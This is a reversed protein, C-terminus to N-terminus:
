TVFVENSMDLYYQFDSKGFSFFLGGKGQSIDLKYSHVGYSSQPTSEKGVKRLPHKQNRLRNWEWTWCASDKPYTWNEDIVMTM